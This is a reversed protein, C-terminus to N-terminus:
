NFIRLYDIESYQASPTNSGGWIMITSNGMFGSLDLNQSFTEETANAKDEKITITYGTRTVDFSLLFFSNDNYRYSYANDMERDLGNHGVAIKHKYVEVFVNGFGVAIFENRFRMTASFKDPLYVANKTQIFSAQNERPIEPAYRSLKLVGNEVKVEGPINSGESGAFPTSSPFSSWVSNDLSDFEDGFITQSETAVETSSNPVNAAPNSCGFIILIGILLFLFGFANSKMHEM